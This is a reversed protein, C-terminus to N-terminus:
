VYKNWYTYELKVKKFMKTIKFNKYFEIYKKGNGQFLFRNYLRGKDRASDTM